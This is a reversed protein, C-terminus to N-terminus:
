WQSEKRRKEANLIELKKEKGWRYQGINGSKLIVRHCPILYAIKNQALSSAVARCAKPQKIRYALEQYSLTEGLTTEMLAKWVKIQFDTGQFFIPISCVPTPNAFIETLYIDAQTKNEEFSAHPWHSFLHKELDGSDHNFFLSVIGKSCWALTAMGLSTHASGFYIPYSLSSFTNM